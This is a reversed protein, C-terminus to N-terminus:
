LPLTFSTKLITSLFTRDVGEIIGSYVRLDQIHREQRQTKVDQLSVSFTRRECRIEGKGESSDKDPNNDESTWKWSEKGQDEKIM